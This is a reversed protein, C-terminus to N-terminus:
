SILAVLVLILVLVLAVGVPGIDAIVGGELGSTLVGPYIDGLDGPQLVLQVVVVAHGAILNGEMHAVHLVLIFDVGGGPLNQFIFRLPVVSTDCVGLVRCPIRETGPGQKEGGM